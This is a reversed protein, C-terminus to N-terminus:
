KYKELIEATRDTAADVYVRIELSPFIKKLAILNEAKAAISAEENYACVCIAFSEAAPSAAINLPKRHWLRLLCLTLPYTIFPHIALLLFITCLAFMVFAM